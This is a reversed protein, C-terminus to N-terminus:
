VQSKLIFFPRCPAGRVNSFQVNVRYSRNAVLLVIKSLTIINAAVTPSNPNMVDATVDANFNDEDWVSAVISTPSGGWNTTDIAWVMGENIRQLRPSEVTELRDTM